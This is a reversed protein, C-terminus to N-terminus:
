TTMFLFRGTQDCLVLVPVSRDPLVVSRPRRMVCQRLRNGVGLPGATLTLSTGLVYLGVQEPYQQGRGRQCLLSPAMACGLRGSVATKIMVNVNTTPRM